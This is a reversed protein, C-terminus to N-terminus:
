QGWRIPNLATIDHTFISVGAILGDADWIPHFVHHYYIDAFQPTKNLVVISVKEGGFAKQIYSKWLTQQEESLTDFISLGPRVDIQRAHMQRQFARNSVTIKYNRDIAIITDDTNNILADLQQEQARLEQQVRQMEEQTATLEEMNQRMEEEQARLQEAFLQTNELLVRTRTNSQVTAVTIAIDEALKELFEVQHPKFTDFSAIEIAGYVKENAKLPVILLSTPTSEGLGSTIEIYGQPIETLHITAEELVCQGLLGQGVQVQRQLHKRKSYAYAGMLQLYRRDGEEQLLFLGGQNAGMYKVLSAITQYALEELNDHNHRLIDAFQNVGESAWNRKEDEEAVRHLNDRMSLLSQGLKDKNSRVQFDSSFDGQGIRSAFETINEMSEVLTNMSQFLQGIEDESRWRLRRVLQGAAIARAVETLQGLPKITTAVIFFYGAVTLVFIILILLISLFQARSQSESVEISIYELLDENQVYLTHVQQNILELPQVLRPNLVKINYSKLTYGGDTSLDDISLSKVYYSVTSDMLPNSEAIDVLHKQYEDWRNAINSVRDRIDANLRGIRYRTDGAQYTGGNQLIDLRQKFRKMESELDNKEIEKGETIRKAYFVMKYISTANDAVVLRSAYLEQMSGSLMNLLLFNGLLVISLMLIFYLLIKRQLTLAKNKKM